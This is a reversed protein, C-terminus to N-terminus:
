GWEVSFLEANRLKFHLTVRKDDNVGIDSQGKWHVSHALNDGVIPDCDDVSRGAVGVLGVRIMGAHRTRANIRIERGKPILPFTTFEGEEDAVVACIRGKQWWAWATKGASLVGDWRPYKHPFSTGHYPIGIRDKGLPVLDRGAVIYESDWEGPLGPKIVAGGPVHNWCVGDASSYLHIESTQDYRHYIMPFMLHYEPMDPYQTRGNTYIDDSFHGNLDPCLLPEVPTWNRFDESEARGVWRREQWYLRTYMVYRDLWKDYYVTTDTDSMHVMLPEPIPTWNIGDPSVIGYMCYIHDSRMRLDKHRPHVKEYKEWLSKIESKPPYATYVAKYHEDPSSKPDIFFTFGDFRTQEPVNIVSPNFNTWEFGDKSESYVIVVSDPETTSYAGLEEEPKYNVKLSWSRYIGDDFIVKGVSRPMPEAKNAQQAAFRVGHPMLGTGAYLDVQPEPPKILPIKVRDPSFWELDGCRIHRLDTFLITEQM